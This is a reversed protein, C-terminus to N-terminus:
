DRPSPSTYLLCAKTRGKEAAAFTFLKVGELMMLDQDVGAHLKVETNHHWTEYDDAFARIVYSYTGIETVRAKAHWRDTGPAGARMRHVTTKGAPSTLLVEAALADHGERFVTAAFEVVEGAFAKASWRGEDVSPKVQLIPLRGIPNPSRFSM